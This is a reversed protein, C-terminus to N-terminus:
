LRRVQIQGMTQCIKRLKIESTGQALNNVVVISTDPLREDKVIVKRVNSFKGVIDADSRKVSNGKLISGSENTSTKAVKAVRKVQLINPNKSSQIVQRPGLTVSQIIQPKKLLEAPPIVVDKKDEGNESAALKRREEKLRLIRERIRKQEEIKNRYDQM